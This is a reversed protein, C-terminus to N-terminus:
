VILVVANFFKACHLLIMDRSTSHHRVIYRVLVLQLCTMIMSSERISEVGIKQSSAFEIRKLKAECFSTQEQTLTLLRLPPNSQIICITINSSNGLLLGVLFVYFFSEFFDFRIEVPVPMIETNVNSSASCVVVCEVVGSMRM